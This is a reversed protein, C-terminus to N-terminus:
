WYEERLGPLFLITLSVFIFLYPFGSRPLFGPINRIRRAEQCDVIFCTVENPTFDSIRSKKGGVLVLAFDLVASQESADIWGRCLVEDVNMGDILLEAAIAATVEQTEVYTSCLGRFFPAFQPFPLTGIQDASLSDLVEKSYYRKRHQHEPPSIIHEDLPELHCYVDTFLVVYSAPESSGIRFRPFGRKYETYINYSTEDTQEILYSQSRFISAALELDSAPM